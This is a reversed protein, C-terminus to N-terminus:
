AQRRGLKQIRRLEKSAFNLWKNNHVKDSLIELLNRERYQRKQRSWRVEWNINLLNIRYCSETNEEM